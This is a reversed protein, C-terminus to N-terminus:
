IEEATLASSFVFGVAVMVIGGGSSGGAQTATVTGNRIIADSVGAGLGGDGICSFVSVKLYNADFNCTLDYGFQNFGGIFNINQFLKWGSPGTRAGYSSM